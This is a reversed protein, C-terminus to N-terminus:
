LSIGARPDSKYLDLLPKVAERLAESEEPLV